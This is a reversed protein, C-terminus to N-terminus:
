SASQFSAAGRGASIPLIGGGSEREARKISDSMNM